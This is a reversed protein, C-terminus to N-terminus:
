TALADNDHGRWASYTKALLLEVSVPELPRIPAGGRNSSSAEEAPAAAAGEESSSAADAPADAARVGLASVAPARARLATLYDVAKSQQGNAIYADVLGTSIQLDNDRLKVAQEYAKVSRQSQEALLTTEGLLQLCSTCPLHCHAFPVLTAPRADQTQM